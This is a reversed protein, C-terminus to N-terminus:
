VAKQRGVSAELIIAVAEATRMVVSLSMYFFVQSYNFSIDMKFFPAMIMTIYENRSCIQM